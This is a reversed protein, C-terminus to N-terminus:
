CSRLVVEKPQALFRDLETRRRSCTGRGVLDDFDIVLLWGIVAVRRGDSTGTPIARM